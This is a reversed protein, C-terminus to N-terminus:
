SVGTKRVVGLLAKRWLVSLLVCIGKRANILNGELILIFLGFGM